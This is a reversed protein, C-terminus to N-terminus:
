SILSNCAPRQLSAPYVISPLAHKNGYLLTNACFTLDDTEPLGSM